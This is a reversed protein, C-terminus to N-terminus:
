FRGGGGGHVRGSSSTHTSNNQQIPRKTVTRYLYIDASKTIKFSNAVTYERASNNFRVTKMKSKMISVTILGIILGICLCTIVPILNFGTGANEGESYAKFLSEAESVYECFAEYYNGKSLDPKVANLLRDIGAGAFVEITEGCTSFYMRRGTMEVVFVMGSYNEGWGFGNNDFYDDAYGSINYDNITSDRVTLICLETQYTNNVSLLMQEIRKEESESLLDAKDNVLPAKANTGVLCLLSLVISIILSLTFIRRKM